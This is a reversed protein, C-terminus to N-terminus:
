DSTQCSSSGLGKVGGRGGPSRQLISASSHTCQRLIEMLEREPTLQGGRMNDLQPMLSERCRIGKVMQEPSLCTTTSACPDMDDQLWGVSHRYTLGGKCENILLRREDAEHKPKQARKPTQPCSAYTARKWFLQRALFPRFVLAHAICPFFVGAPSIGLQGDVQM